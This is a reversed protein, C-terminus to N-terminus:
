LAQGDDINLLAGTIFRASPGALMLLAEDLADEDMLRRRPFAGMQRRGGESAFWDANIETEIYGPCLANVAIQRRAWERALGRTLMAVAAKSACYAGLGPLVEFAAISAINIIRARGEAAVGSDIMRRAAERAAFFVGRVNVNFTQDWVEPTLDLAMGDGGVGANNVLISIPGLADAAADLAPGIAAVEAVDLAVAVAQGGAARIAAVEADLRDTRRAMLAVAAGQGALVHAFRRGLGSSAGTVVAVQGELRGAM